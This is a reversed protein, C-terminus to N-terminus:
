RLEGSLSTRMRALTNLRELCRPRADPRCMTMLASRPQALAPRHSLMQLAPPEVADIEGLKANKTSCQAVIVPYPSNATTSIEQELLDVAFRDCLTEEARASAGTVLTRIMAFM